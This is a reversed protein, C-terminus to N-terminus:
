GTMSSRMGLHPASGSRNVPEKAVNKMIYRVLVAADTRRLRITLEEQQIRVNETGSAQFPAVSGAFQVGFSYGGGNALAVQAWACLAV